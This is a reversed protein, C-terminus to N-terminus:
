RVWFDRSRPLGASYRGDRRRSCRGWRWWCRCQRFAPAPGPGRPDPSASYGRGSSCVSDERLAGTVPRKEGSFRGKQHSFTRWSGRSSHPFQPYLELYNFSRQPRMLVGDDPPCLVPGDPQFGPVCCPRPFSPTPAPGSVSATGKGCCFANLTGVTGFTPPVVFHLPKVRTGYTPVPTKRKGHGTESSSGWEM